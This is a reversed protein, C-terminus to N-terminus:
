KNYMSPIYSKLNSKFIKNLFFVNLQVPQVVKFIISFFFSTVNPHCLILFLLHKHFYNQRQPKVCIHIYESSLLLQSKTNKLAPQAFNSYVLLCPMVMTNAIFYERLKYMSSGESQLFRSGMITSRHILLVDRSIWRQLIVKSTWLKLITCKSEFCLVQIRHVLELSM